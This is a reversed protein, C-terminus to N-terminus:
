FRQYCVRDNYRPDETSSCTTNCRVHNYTTILDYLNPLNGYLSMVLLFLGLDSVAVRPTQDPDVSDKHSFISM